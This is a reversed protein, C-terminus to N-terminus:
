TLRSGCGGCSAGTSGSKPAMRARCVPCESSGNTRAEHLAATLREALTVRGGGLREAVGAHRAAPSGAAAAGAAADRDTFLSAPTDLVAPTM